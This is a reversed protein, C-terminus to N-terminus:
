HTIFREKDARFLVNGEFVEVKCLTLGGTKELLVVLHRGTEGCHFAETAGNGVQSDQCACVKMNQLTPHKAAPSVDTTGIRIMSLRDGLIYMM